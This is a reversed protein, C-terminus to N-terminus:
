QVQTITVTPGINTQFIIDNLDGLMRTSVRFVRIGLATLEPTNGSVADVSYAEIRQLSPQEPSLLGRQFEEVGSTIADVRETTGPKKAYPAAIDIYTDQLFDAFARRNDLVRTPYSDPDVATVSSYFWWGNVKDKVLVGVGCARMLKYDDEVMPNAAFATELTTVGQIPENEPSGVGTQYEEPLNNRMAARFGSPSMTIARSLAESYVQVHPFSICVKDAHVGTFEGSGSGGYLAQVEAKKTAIASSTNTLCPGVHVYARRGPGSRSSDKANTWLKARVVKNQDDAGTCTSTWMRASWVDKIKVTTDTGPLTADIAAPYRTFIRNALTDPSPKTGTFAAYIATAEGATTTTSPKDAVDTGIISSYGPIESDIVTDLAAQALTTGKVFFATPGATDNENTFTEDVVVRGAYGTPPTNTNVTTGKPNIIDQSLAVVGTASDIAADAFRTGAPILIDKNTVSTALDDAHIYVTFNVVAKASDATDAVMMDCDVRQLVLGRFSKGLLEAYGNGDFYVGSGDQVGAASQSLRDVYSPVGIYRAQIDGGGTVQSPVFPGKLFEAVLCACSNSNGTPIAEGTQDVIIIRELELIQPLTPMTPVRLTFM